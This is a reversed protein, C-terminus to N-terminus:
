EAIPLTFTFQSGVGSQSQVEIKGGHAEVFRRAITLGLGSGGTARTRSKDVRYFREFIFPLDKEPIGEGNDIVSIRLWQGDKEAAVKISGNSATHAIANELLNRLVQSIRQRDIEVLPLEDPMATTLIISKDAAQTQKTAVIRKILAVIDEKQKTLKLEGAESLSLEQLDDVLRSLHTAEEALSSITASDPQVVGDSIAELYGKINSLPTRLEHAVDAIMNRQLEKAQGIDTAMSNFAQALEGMEGKEKIHLRQTLDGQGLRRAAVSLAKVPASIRRSLFFTFLVALLIALLTGWLLYSSIQQSVYLISPFDSPQILADRPPSPFDTGSEPNIYLTGSVTDQRMPSLQICPADSSSYQQGLLSADSDAVVTNTADTLIIRRGYLSGWQQVYPQIGSWGGTMHYYRYLEFGVRSFRATEIRQTYQYIEQKAARNVFFTVAGVTVLIVATFALFLRFRFSHIM